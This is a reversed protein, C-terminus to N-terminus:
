KPGIPGPQDASDPDDGAVKGVPRQAPGTTAVDSRDPALEEARGRSSEGVGLAPEPNMDTSSSGNAEEDSVPPRPGPKAANSTDYAKDATNEGPEGRLDDYPPVPVQVEGGHGFEPGRSSGGGPAQQADSTGHPETPTPPQDAM